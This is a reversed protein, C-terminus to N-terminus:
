SPNKKEVWTSQSSLLQWRGDRHVFVDTFRLSGEGYHGKYTGKLTERGTVVAVDSCYLSVKLDDNEISDPKVDGKAFLAIDANRQILSSDSCTIVLDKAYFKELFAVDGKIRATAWDNLLKGLAKESSSVSQASGLVLILFGLLGMTSFLRVLGAFKKM